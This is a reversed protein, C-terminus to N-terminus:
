TKIYMNRPRKAPSSRPIFPAEDGPENRVRRAVLEWGLRETLLDNPIRLGARVGLVLFKSYLTMGTETPIAAVDEAPRTSHQRIMGDITAITARLAVNVKLASSPGAPERCCPCRPDRDLSRRLCGRCASHGCALTVPERMRELCVPCELIAPDMRQLLEM